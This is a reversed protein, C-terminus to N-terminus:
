KSALHYKSNASARIESLPSYFKKDEVVHVIPAMEAYHEQFDDKSCEISNLVNNSVMPRANLAFDAIKHFFDVHNQDTIFGNRAMNHKEQNPLKRTIIMDNKVQAVLFDAIAECQKQWTNVLARHQSLRKVNKLKLLLDNLSIFDNISPRYNEPINIRKTM